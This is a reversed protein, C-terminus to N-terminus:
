IDEDEDEFIDVDEDVEVKPEDKTPIQTLDSNEFITEKSGGTYGRAIGDIRVETKRDGYVTDGLDKRIDDMTIMNMELLEKQEDSLMDETIEVKQAGNIYVVNVGFERVEDGEAKSFLKQFGKAKAHSKSIVLPIPTFCNKKCQQDYYQTFVNFVIDNESEDNTCGETFFTKITGVCQQETSSDVHYVRKPVFNRYWQGKSYSYEVEGTVKWVWDKTKENSTVKDLWKVFDIATIFIKHKKKSAELATTLEAIKKEIDIKETGSANELEKKLETIQAEIDKRDQAIETDVTYTKYNAVTNVIDPNFRDDWKVTLKEDKGGENRKFTMVANKDAHKEDWMGGSARLFQVNDGCIITLNLENIVWGSNFTKEVFTNEKKRTIKGVFSFTNAMNKKKSRKYLLLNKIM